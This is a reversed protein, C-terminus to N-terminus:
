LWDRNLNYSRAREQWDVHKVADKVLEQIPKDVEDSVWCLELESHEDDSEIKETSSLSATCQWRPLLGTSQIVLAYGNNPEDSPFDEELEQRLAMTATEPAGEVVGAYTPTVCFRSFSVEVEEGVLGM